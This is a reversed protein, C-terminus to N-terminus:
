RELRGPSLSRPTPPPPRRIDGPSAGRNARSLIPRRLMTVRPPDFATQSGPHHPLSGFVIVQGKGSWVGRLDPIAEEALAMTCAAVIVALAVIIMKMPQGKLHCLNQAPRRAVFPFSNLLGRNPPGLSAGLQDADLMHMHVLAALRNDPINRAVLFM